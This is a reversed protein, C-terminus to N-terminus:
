LQIYDEFLNIMAKAPNSLVRDKHFVIGLARQIRTGGLDVKQLKEDIMTEPLVSWGLGIEVMQKITELYNTEIVLEYGEGASSFVDEVIKRTFTNETPLVAGYKAIDEICIRSKSFVEHDKAFVLSMPDNWLKLQAINSQPETPLTVVGLELVGSLISDCIEESGSFDIQLNVNPYEVSYKKLIKPLRHLGIHHSTGFALEGRVEHSLNDIELKANKIDDIIKKARPLLLRGAETLYIKHGIRDFLKGGLQEELQSVRKSVAPQTIFLEEAAISFSDNDAVSVFAMLEKYDM